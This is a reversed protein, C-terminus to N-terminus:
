EEPSYEDSGALEGAPLPILPPRIRPLADKGAAQAAHLLRLLSAECMRGQCNGMGARTWRKIEDASAAGAAIAERVDGLTVEECRCLPTDDPAGALEPLARFASNLWAAFRRQRALRPALSTEAHAWGAEDMKGCFRAAALGALRGELRALEAGGIGAMDGAVFVGARSTELSPSRLPTAVGQTPDVRQRCGLMRSLASNPALGYGSVLADAALELTQGSEDVRRAVVQEVGEVGRVASVQWGFRYNVRGSLFRRLYAAGELMRSWEGWAATAGPLLDRPRAAELVEVQEAGADVLNAALALLLPGSGAVVVRRGPCVRQTKILTLAAGAGIVGPLTWGPFPVPRDYAGCTLVVARCAVEVPEPSRSAHIVVGCPEHFIGWVQTGYFLQAGCTEFRTFLAQGSPSLHGVPARYYQGGPGPASELLAVRAGQEAAAIAAEMGAPGAGIVAIDTRLKM